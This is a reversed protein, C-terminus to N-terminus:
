SSRVSQPMPLSSIYGNERFWLIADAFSERIPRITFGLERHAKESSIMSNSCLVDISYTTFRPKTRTLRYYIPTVRAAMRALWIPVKLSPAKVGTLEQLM